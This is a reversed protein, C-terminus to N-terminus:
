HWPTSWKKARAAPLAHMVHSVIKAKIGLGGMWRGGKQTINCADGVRVWLPHHLAHSRTDAAQAGPKARGNKAKEELDAAM